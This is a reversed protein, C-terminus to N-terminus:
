TNWEVFTYGNRSFPAYSLTDLEAISKIIYGSTLAETYTISQATPHNQSYTLYMGPVDPEDPPTPIEGGHGM